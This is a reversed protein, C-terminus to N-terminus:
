KYLNIWEAKNVVYWKLNKIDKYRELINDSINNMENFNHKNYFGIARLNNKSVCWYVKCLDLKKFAIELINNMGFWSYGKSMAKKRVTIGLEAEKKVKDINKLSVTGMYEDDGSVIAMHLNTESNSFNIFDICDDITKSMFDARLNHVVDEDHMWELMLPADKLQLERLKM